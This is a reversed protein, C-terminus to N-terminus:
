PPGPSSPAAPREERASRVAGRRLGSPAESPSTVPRNSRTPGFRTRRAATRRRRKEPAVDREDASLDPGFALWAVGAAIMAVALPNRRAARGALALVDDSEDRLAHGVGTVLARPSARAQLEELTAALDDRRAEIDTEIDRPREGPPDSMPM